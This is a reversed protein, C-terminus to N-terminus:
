CQQSAREPRSQEPSARANTSPGPIWGGARCCCRFSHSIRDLDAPFHSRSSISRLRCSKSLFFDIVLPLLEFVTILSLITFFPVSVLSLDAPKLQNQKAAKIWRALLSFHRVLLLFFLLPSAFSPSSWPAFSFLPVRSLPLHSLPALCPCLAHPTVPASPQPFVLPSALSAKSDAPRSRLRPSQAPLLHQACAFPHCGSRSPTTHSLPCTPM